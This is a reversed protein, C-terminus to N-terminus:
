RASHADALGVAAANAREIASTRGRFLVDREFTRLVRRFAADGYRPNRGLAATAYGYLLGLAGIVYPREVSRYVAVALMYYWASGMFWKGRGWRARGHFVGKHSSGMLRRHIIRLEERDESKAIWGMRRCMHGDIGDWGVGRAFGGIDNYCAVRYFKAAGIANEDGMRELILEGSSLRHYEKGSYNGLRPEDRMAAVVTQFYAPPLWGKKLQLIMERILQEDSSLAMARQLPLRDSEVADIYAEALAMASEGHNWADWIGAEIWSISGESGVM